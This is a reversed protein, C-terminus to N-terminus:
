RRGSALLTSALTMLTTDLIDALHHEARPEAWHNLVNGLIPLSKPRSTLRTTQGMKSKVKSILAEPFVEGASGEEATNEEVAHEHVADAHGHGEEAARIVDHSHDHEEHGHSHGHGGLVFFGALNSALGLSGVILILKPNTIVPPDILRTIAELVISLCLAILFM